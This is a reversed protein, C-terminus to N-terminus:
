NYSRVEINNNNAFEVTVFRDQHYNYTSTESSKPEGIILDDSIVFFKSYGYSHTGTVDLSTDLYYTNNYFYYANSEGMLRNNSDYRQVGKATFKLYEGSTNIYFTAGEPALSESNHGVSVFYFKNEMFASKSTQNSGNTSITSMSGSSTATNGNCSALLILVFLTILRKM